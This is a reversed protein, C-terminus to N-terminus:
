NGIDWQKSHERREFLQRLLDEDVTGQRISVSLQDALQDTYVVRNAAWPWIWRRSDPHAYESLSVKQAFRVNRVTITSLGLVCPLDDLFRADVELERLGPCQRLLPWCASVEDVDMFESRPSFFAISRISARKENGIEQLFDSLLRGNEFAFTNEKWFIRSAEEYIARNALLIGLDKHRACLCKVGKLDPSRELGFEIQKDAYCDDCIFPNTKPRAWRSRAPSDSSSEMDMHYHKWPDPRCEVCRLVINTNRFTDASPNIFPHGDCSDLHRLNFKCPRVLLHRYIHLRIEQPLAFLRDLFPSELVVAQKLRAQQARKHKPKQRLRQTLNRSFPTQTCVEPAM